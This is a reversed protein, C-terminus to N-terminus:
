HFLIFIIKFSLWFTMQIVEVNVFYKNESIDSKCGSTEFCSPMEGLCGAYSLLKCAELSVLSHLPPTWLSICPGSPGITLPVMQLSHLCCSPEWWALWLLLPLLHCDNANSSSTRLSGSIVLSSTPSELVQSPLHSSMNCMGNYNLLSSLLSIM